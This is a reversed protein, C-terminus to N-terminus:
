KAPLGFFKEATKTTVRAVEELSIDKVESIVKAVQYVHMPESKKGRFPEPAMYPMDTELMIQELPIEKVAQRRDEAKKFSINGTFSM